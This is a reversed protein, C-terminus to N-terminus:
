DGPNLNLTAKIAFDINEKKLLNELPVNIESLFTSNELNNKFELLSTRDSARGSLLIKQDTEAPNFSLNTLSIGSPVLRVLQYILDSWTRYEQQIKAVENLRKNFLRIDKHFLNGYRTTLTTQEVIQNFHNQLAMKTILLAIATGIIYLLIIIILNKALMYIHHIQLAQKRAPPLLNLNISIKRKQLPRLALGISTTYSLIKNKPM